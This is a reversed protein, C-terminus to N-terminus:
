LNRYTKAPPKKMKEVATITTREPFGPIGEGKTDIFADWHWWGASGFQGNYWRIKRQRRSQYTPTNMGFVELPYQTDRGMDLLWFDPFIEDEAELAHPAQLLRTGEAHLKEEITAEYGSDASDDPRQRADAGFGPCGRIRKKLNLQAIAVVEHGSEWAVLESAFSREVRRRVEARIDM